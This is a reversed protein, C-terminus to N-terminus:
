KKNRYRGSKERVAARRDSNRKAPHAFKTQVVSGKSRPNIVRARTLEFYDLVEEGRDFKEELNKATTQDAQSRKMRRSRSRRPNGLVLLGFQEGAIPSSQRGTSPAVGVSLWTDSRWHMKPVSCFTDDLSVPREEPARTRAVARLPVRSQRTGNEIADGVRFNGLATECLFRARCVHGGFGVGQKRCLSYEGGDVGM